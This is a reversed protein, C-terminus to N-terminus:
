ASELALVCQELRRAAIECYREDLEIGIAPRDLNKAAVLTTGSGMFPDLIVGNESNSVLSKLLALPKETPHLANRSRNCTLVNGLGAGMRSVLATGWCILEHQSKWRAGMGAWGKNWVLMGRCRLGALEVAEKTHGWMRWDTFVYASRARSLRIVRRMLAVYGETSMTDGQIERVPGTTGKSGDSKGMENFGGSSYPPDTVLCDAKVAGLIDLADGHYITIGDCEYYPRM